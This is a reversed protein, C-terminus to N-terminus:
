EDAVIDKILNHYKCVDPNISLDYADFEQQTELSLLM